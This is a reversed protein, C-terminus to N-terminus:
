PLVGQFSSPTLDLKAHASDHEHRGQPTAVFRDCERADPNRVVFRDIGDCSVIINSKSRDDQERNQLAETSKALPFSKQM